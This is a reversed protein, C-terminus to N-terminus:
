VDTEDRQFVENYLMVHFQRCLLLELHGLGKAQGYVLQVGLAVYNM